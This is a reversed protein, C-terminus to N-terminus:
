KGPRGIFIAERPPDAVRIERFRKRITELYGVTLWVEYEFKFGPGLAM